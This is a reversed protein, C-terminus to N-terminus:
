NNGISNRIMLFIKWFLYGVSGIIWIWLNLRTATQEATKTKLLYQEKRIENLDIQEKKSFQIEMIQDDCEWSGVLDSPIETIRFWKRYTHNDMEAVVHQKIFIDNSKESIVPPEDINIQTYYMGISFILSGLACIAILTLIERIFRTIRKIYLRKRHNTNNHLGADGRFLNEVM